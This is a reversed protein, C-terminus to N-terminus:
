EGKKDMNLIAYWATRYIYFITEDYLNYDAIEENEDTVYILVGYKDLKVEVLTEYEDWGDDNPVSVILNEGNDNEASYPFRISGGNGKVLKKLLNTTRYTLEHYANFIENPATLNENMNTRREKNNDYQLSVVFIQCKWIKKLNKVHAKWEVGVWDRVVFVTGYYRM